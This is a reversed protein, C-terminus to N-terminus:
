APREYVVLLRPPHAPSVTFAVDPRAVLGAAAAAALGERREDDSVDASKWHVLRGGRALWPPIM